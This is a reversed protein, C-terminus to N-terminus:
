PCARYPSPRVCRTQSFGNCSSCHNCVCTRRSSTRPSMAQTQPMPLTRYCPRFHTSCLNQTLWCPPHRTLWCPLHRTLWCSQCRSLRGFHLLAQTWLAPPLVVLPAQPAHHLHLPCSPLTPRWAQPLAPPWCRHHRSLHHRHHNMSCLPSQQWSPACSTIPPAHALLSSSPILRPLLRVLFSSIPLSTLPAGLLLRRFASLNYTFHLWSCHGTVRRPRLRLQSPFGPLFWQTQTKCRIEDYVHTQIWGM